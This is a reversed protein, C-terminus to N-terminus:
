ELIGVNDETNELIEFVLLRGAEIAAKDDGKKLFAELKNTVEKYFIIESHEIEAHQIIKKGEQTIVPIGKNTVHKAVEEPLNNKRAHLAGSPIVNVKAEQEKKSIRILVDKKIKRLDKLKIGQKAALINTRRGGSLRQRNKNAVDQMSNSSATMNQNNRNLINKKAANESDTRMVKNRRDGVLDKKKGFRKSFWNTVGGIDTDGVEEKAAYGYNIDKSIGASGEVTKKSLSNALGIPTLSLFKSSLVKDATNSANEITTAGGTASNLADSAFGGIKMIGSVATGIGPIAAAANAVTDYASNLGETTANTTSPDSPLLASGIDALGGFKAGFQGVGYAGKRLGSGIQTGFGPKDPIKANMPDLANTATAAPNPAGQGIGTIHQVPNLPQNAHTQQYTRGGLFSPQISKMM